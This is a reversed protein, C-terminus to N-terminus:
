RGLLAALMVANVAWHAAVAAPLGAALRLAGFILGGGFVGLLGLVVALPALQAPVNTQAVSQTTLVVHWLAFVTSTALWAVATSRARVFLDWLVGRFLLEEFLATGVTLYLLLRVAVDRASMESAIQWRLPEGMLPPVAFVAAAPLAMLVGAAVGLGLARRLRGCGLGLARWRGRYALSVGLLLLPVTLLNGTATFFNPEVQRPGALWALGNAYVLVAASLALAPRWGGPRRVADACALTAYVWRAAANSGFSSKQVM